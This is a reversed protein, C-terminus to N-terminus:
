YEVKVGAGTLLDQVRRAQQDSMAGFLFGSADDTVRM